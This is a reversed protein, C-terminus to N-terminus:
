QQFRQTRTVQFPQDSNTPYRATVTCLQEANLQILVSASNTQHIEGSPLDWTEGTYDAQQLLRQAARLLGAEALRQAQRHEQELRVQRRDALVRRVQTTLLGSLLLLVIMVMVSIAGRRRLPPRQRGVAAPQVRFEARLVSDILKM